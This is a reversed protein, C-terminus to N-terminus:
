DNEVENNLFQEAEDVTEYRDKLHEIKAMLIFDKIIEKAKHLQLTKQENEDNMIEWVQQILNVRCPPNPLDKMKETLEERTM